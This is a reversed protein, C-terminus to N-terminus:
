LYAAIFVRIVDYITKGEDKLKSFVAYSSLINKNMM